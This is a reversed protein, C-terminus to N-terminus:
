AALCEISVKATGSDSVIGIVQGPSVAFIRERGASILISGSGDTVDAAPVAATGGLKVWIAANTSLIVAGTAAPVTYDENTTLVRVDVHNTMAVVPLSQKMKGFVELQQTVAM